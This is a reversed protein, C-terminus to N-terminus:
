ETGGVKKRRVQSYDGKLASSPVGNGNVLLILGPVGNGNVKNLWRPKLTKAEAREKGQFALQEPFNGGGKAKIKTKLYPTHRQTSTAMM